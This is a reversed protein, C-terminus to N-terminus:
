AVPGGGRGPQPMIIIQRRIIFDVEELKLDESQFVESDDVDKNSYKDGQKFVFKEERATDILKIIISYPLPHIKIKESMRHDRGEEDYM